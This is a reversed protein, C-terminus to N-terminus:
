NASQTASYKLPQVCHVLLQLDAKRSDYFAKTINVQFKKEFTKIEEESLGFPQILSFSPPNEITDNLVSLLRSHLAKSQDALKTSPFLSVILVLIPHILTLAVQQTLLPIRNPLSSLLSDFDDISSDVSSSFLGPLKAAFSNAIKFIPCSILKNIDAKTRTSIATLTESPEISRRLRRLNRSSDANILADFLSPLSDIRPSVGSLLDFLATRLGSALDALQPSGPLGEIAWGVLDGNDCDFETRNAFRREFAIFTTRLEARKSPDSTRALRSILGAREADAFLLKQYSRRQIHALVEAEHQFELSEADQWYRSSKQRAGRSEAWSLRAGNIFDGMRRDSRGLILAAGVFPGALTEHQSGKCDLTSFSTLSDGSLGLRARARGAHLALASNFPSLASAFQAFLAYVEEGEAVEALIDLALEAFDDAARRGGRISTAPESHMAKVYMAIIKEPTESAWGILAASATEGTAALLAKPGKPSAYLASAIPGEGLLARLERSTAPTTLSAEFVKEALEIIRPPLDSHALGLKSFASNYLHLILLRFNKAFLSGPKGAAEAVSLARFLRVDVGEAESGSKFARSEFVLPEIAVLSDVAVKGGEFDPEVSDLETQNEFAQYARCAKIFKDKYEDSQSALAALLSFGEQGELAGGEELVKLSEAIKPEPQVLVELKAVLRKAALNDKLAPKDLQRKILAVPLKAQACAEPSPRMGMLGAEPLVKVKGLFPPLIVGFIRALLSAFVKKDDPATKNLKMLGAAFNEYDDAALSLATIDKAFRSAGDNASSLALKTRLPEDLVASLRTLQGAESEQQAPSLGPWASIYAEYFELAPGLKGQQGLAISLLLNASANQGGSIKPLIKRSIKEADAWRRWSLCERISDLEKEVGKM